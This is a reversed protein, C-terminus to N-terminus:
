FSVNFVIRKLRMSHRSKLLQIDLVLLTGTDWVICEKIRMFVVRSFGFFLADTKLFFPLGGERTM